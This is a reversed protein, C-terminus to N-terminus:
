KVEVITNCSGCVLFVEGTAVERHWASGCSDGCFQCQFAKTEDLTEYAEQSAKQRNIELQVEPPLLPLKAVSGQPMVYGHALLIGKIDIGSNGIAIPDLKDGVNM